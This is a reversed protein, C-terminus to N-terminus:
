RELSHNLERSEQEAKRRQSIDRAISVHIKRGSMQVQTASVELPIEHGDMHRVVWEFRHCKYKEVQDLIQATKEISSLGGPQM